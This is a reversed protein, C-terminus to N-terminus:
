GSRREAANGAKKVFAVAEAKSEFLNAHYANRMAETAIMVRTAVNTGYRAIATTYKTSAPVAVEEAYRDSWEWDMQFNDVCVVLPFKVRARHEFLRKLKALLEDRWAEFSVADAVVTDQYQVVAVNNKDDWDVRLKM